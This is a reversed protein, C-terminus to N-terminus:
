AKAQTTGKVARVNQELAEQQQLWLLLRNWHYIYGTMFRTPARKMLFVAEEHAEKANKIMDDSM